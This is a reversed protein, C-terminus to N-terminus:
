THKLVKQSQYISILVPQVNQFRFLHLSCLSARDFKWSHTYDCKERSIISHCIHDCCIGFYWIACTEHIAGNSEERAKIAYVLPLLISM